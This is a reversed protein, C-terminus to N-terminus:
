RIVSALEGFVKRFLYVPLVKQVVVGIRPSWFHIRMDFSEIARYLILKKIKVLGEEELINLNEIVLKELIEEPEIGFPHM